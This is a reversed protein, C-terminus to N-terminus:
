DQSFVLRLLWAALLFWLGVIVIGGALSLPKETLLEAKRTSEAIVQSPTLKLILLIGLPLIVLDDLYGIVPIFDPILDLPSFAYAAILLAIFKTIAPTQPHRAICYVTLAQKKLQRAAETLHSFLSKM